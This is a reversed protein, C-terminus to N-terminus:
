STILHFFSKNRMNLVELEAHMLQQLILLPDAIHKEEEAVRFEEIPKLVTALNENSSTIIQRTSNM